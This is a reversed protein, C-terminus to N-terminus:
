VSDPWLIKRWDIGANNKLRYLVDKGMTIDKEKLLPLSSVATKRGPTVAYIM